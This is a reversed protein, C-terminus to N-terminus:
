PTPNPPCATYRVKSPTGTAKWLSADTVGAARDLGVEFITLKSDITTALPPASWCPAGARPNGAKYRSVIDYGMGLDTASEPENSPATHLRRAAEWTANRDIDGKWTSDKSMVIARQEILRGLWRSEEWPKGAFDAPLGPGYAADANRMVSLTGPTGDAQDREGFNLETDYLFGVTLAGSMGRRTAHAIATSMYLAGGIADECANFLGDADASAAKIDAKLNGLRDIRRTDPQNKGTTHFLDSYYLLGDVAEGAADRHGWYKTLKNSPKLANYCAVVLIFDGTGTCFGVQGITYGRGDQINSCSDYNITTNDNEAMSVLMAIKQKTWPHAIPSTGGCTGVGPGLAGPQCYQSGACTGCYVSQYTGHNDKATVGGCNYHGLCDCFQADDVFPCSPAGGADSGGADPGAEAAVGVTAAATTSAGVAGADPASGTIPAPESKGRCAGAGAGLM